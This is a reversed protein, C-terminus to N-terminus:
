IRYRIRQNTCLNGNREELSIEQLCRGASLRLTFESGSKQHFSLSFGWYPFDTDAKLTQAVDPRKCRQVARGVSNGERDFVKIHVPIYTGTKTRACAWGALVIQGDKREACDLHFYLKRADQEMLNMCREARKENEDRNGPFPIVENGLLDVMNRIPVTDGRLYSQFEVEWDAFRKAEDECIGALKLLHELRTFAYGPLQVSLFFMARYCIWREPIDADFSWEYDIVNWADGETLINSFILDVDAIQKQRLQGLVEIYRLLLKEAAELEGQELFAQMRQQLTMGKIWPFEAVNDRCVVPCFSICTGEAMKQLKAHNEEMRKVHQQALDTMPYKRVIRKGSETQIIDTRIQFREDREVSFKSYLIKEKKKECEAGVRCVFFFSNSFEEFLGEKLLSNYVKTEDFLVYRDKDFNQINENLEDQGPLYESSYIVSPFRYDPYPYYCETVTFGAETLINEYEKKGFVPRRMTLVDGQPGAFYLDSGDDQCGAFYKLGLRNPVALLLCGGEKLLSAYQRLRVKWAGVACDEGVDFVGVQFIVDYPADAGCIQEPLVATVDIRNEKLSEELAKCPDSVLLIKAGQEIPYWRIINARMKSHEYLDSYTM